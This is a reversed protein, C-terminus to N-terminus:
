RLLWSSVDQVNSIEVVLKLIYDLLVDKMVCILVRILCCPYLPLHVVLRHRLCVILNIGVDVVRVQLLLWHSDPRLMHEPIASSEHSLLGETLTEQLSFEILLNFLKFEEAGLVVWLTPSLM